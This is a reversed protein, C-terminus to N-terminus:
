VRHAVNWQLGGGNAGWKRELFAWLEQEYATPAISLHVGYAWAKMSNVQWYLAWLRTVPLARYNADWSIRRM